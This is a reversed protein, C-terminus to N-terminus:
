CPQRFTPNDFPINNHSSFYNLVTLKTGHAYSKFFHNVRSDQSLMLQVDRTPQIQTHTQQQQQTAAGAASFILWAFAAAALPSRTQLLQPSNGGREPGDVVGPCGAGGGHGLLVVRRGGRRGGVVGVAVRVVGVLGIVHVIGALHDRGVVVEGGAGHHPADGALVIGDLALDHGEIRRGPHDNQTLKM